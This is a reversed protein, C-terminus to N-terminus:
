KGSASGEEAEVKCAVDRCRDTWGIYVCRCAVYLGVIFTWTYKPSALLTVTGYARAFHAMKGLSRSVAQKLLFLSVIVLIIDAVRRGSRTPNDQQQRSGGKTATCKSNPLLHYARSLHLICFLTLPIHFLLLDRIFFDMAFKDRIFSNKVFIGYLTLVGYTDTLVEGVLWPGVVPYLAITLLCYYIDDLHVLKLLGYLLPIDTTGLVPKETYRRFFLLPLVCVCELAVICLTFFLSGNVMLVFSSLFPQRPRSHDLSFEQTTTGFRGAGDKVRVTIVHLGSTYREPKWPLVFLPGGDVAKASGLPVEDIEVKVYRIISPSFILLRIHSSHVMKQDPEHGPALFRASKPNTILIVPWEGFQVDSFSLMDHDFAMIRYKRHKKWDELELELSGHRQLTYMRKVGSKIDLDHLHGCLYAIGNTLLDTFGQPALITSTPYHGFYITHNSPTHQARETLLKLHYLDMEDLIGFFNIPRRIGIKLLADVHIFSYTGFPMQIEYLFSSDGTEGLVSYERYLNNSHQASPVNFNDHNGRVDLWLLSYPLEAGLLIQKYSHWDGEHQIGHPAGDTIDGTALVLTPKIIQLHHDCFQKFDTLRSKKESDEVTTLHTDSIQVFWWINEKTSGPYPPLNDAPHPLGQYRVTVTFYHLGWAVINWLIVSTMLGAVVYLLCGRSQQM